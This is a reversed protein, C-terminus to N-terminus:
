GSAASGDSHVVSGAGDKGRSAACGATLVVVHGIMGITMAMWPVNRSDLDVLLSQSNPM